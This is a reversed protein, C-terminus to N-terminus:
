PRSRLAVRGRADATAALWLRVGTRDAVCGAAPLQRRAGASQAPVDVTVRWVLIRRKELSSRVCRDRRRHGLELALGAYLRPRRGCPPRWSGAVFVADYLLVVIPATAMSEKSGAGLLCSLVALSGMGATVMRSAVDGADRRLVDGSLLVGDDIGHAPHRLRGGRDAASPGVLDVRLRIRALRGCRRLTRCPAAAGLTSGSSRSCCCGACCTCRSIGPTFRRALDLGAMAYNVALTLSVVPRGAFASQVPARMAQFPQALQTVYPNEVISGHDDFVFPLRVAGSFAVLTAAVLAVAPMWGAVSNTSPRMACGSSVSRPQPVKISRTRSQSVTSREFRRHHRYGDLRQQIVSAADQAPGHQLAQTAADVARDFSGSAAYAMGLVDFMHADPRRRGPSRGTRRAQVALPGNVLRPDDDVHQSADVTRAACRALGAPAPRRAAAGDSAEPKTARTAAARGLNFHPEAYAPDLSAPAVSSDCTCGVQPRAVHRDTGSQERAGCEDPDVVLGERCQGRGRRPPRPCGAYERLNIRASM